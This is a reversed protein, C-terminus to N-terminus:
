ASSYNESSFLLQYISEFFAFFLPSLLANAVTQMVGQPWVLEAHGGGALIIVTGNMSVFLVLLVRHLISTYMLHSAIYRVMLYALVYAGIYLGATLATFGEAMVGLVLVPTFGQPMPVRLAFWVILTYLADIRINAVSVHDGIASEFVLLFFGTVLFFIYDRKM